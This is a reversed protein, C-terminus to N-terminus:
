QMLQLVNRGNLPLDAIQKQNIVTNLSATRTDVAPADGVVSVTDAVVGVKLSLNVTANQDVALVMQSVTLTQFGAKTINITYSGAPLAPVVYYGADNTTVSREIGTGVSRVLVTAGPVAAESADVITGAVSATTRQALARPAGSDLLVLGLLFFTFTRIWKWASSSSRMHRPAELRNSTMAFGPPRLSRRSAGMM